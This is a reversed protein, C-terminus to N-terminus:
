LWEKLRDAFKYYLFSLGLCIVTLALFTLVKGLDSWQWVDHLAVRLIAAVLLGLGCWRQRRENAAFGILILAVALGAWGLTLHDGAYATISNSTFLWAMGSSLLVVIWSEERTVLDRALYRLLAPQAVFLAFAFADAWTFLLNEQGPANVYHVAGVASLVFGSRIAYSSRAFAGGAIFATALAFLALTIEPAPATGFVCRILLGLAISQYVRALIRLAPRFDIASDQAQVDSGAREARGPLVRERPTGPSGVTFRRAIWGTAYVTAIPIAAAWWTWPFTTWPFNDNNGGALFTYVSLGLLIQGALAFAWLRIWTGYAVFVLSLLAAAIMWTQASTWPHVSIYCYAVMALACFGTLPTLWGRTVIRSQKPWWTVLLMTVLGVIDHSSQTQGFWNAGPQSEEWGLGFSILQAWVLLLQSM